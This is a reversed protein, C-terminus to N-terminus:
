VGGNRGADERWPERESELVAEEREEAERVVLFSGPTLLLRIPPWCRNRSADLQRRWADHPMAVAVCSMGEGVVPKFDEKLGYVSEGLEGAGKACTKEFLHPM